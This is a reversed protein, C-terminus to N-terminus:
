DTVVFSSSGLRRSHPVTYSTDSMELASYDKSVDSSSVWHCPMVGLVAPTEVLM